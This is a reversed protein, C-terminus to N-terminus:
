IGEAGCKKCVRVKGKESIKYGIRTAKKCKSCVLAVNATTIRGEVSVIQGKEGSRRARIHRRRMNVGEIVVKGSDEFVALIKGSSGKNKGKTVYVNDNKKLKM